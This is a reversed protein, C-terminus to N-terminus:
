SATRQHLGHEIAWAAIQVRSNLTLRALIHKIHNAATGETIVLEGAIQRNTLGRAILAAVERERQTLISVPESTSPRASSTGGVEPLRATPASQDDSALAYEIAEDLRIGRWESSIAAASDPHLASRAPEMWCEFRRQWAASVTEGISDRISTATAALRLARGPEGRRAAVGGLAALAYAVRQQDGIESALTLSEEEYRRATDLDGQELAVEGLDNLSIAMGRRNGLERYARLGAEYLTRATVLDDQFHAIVGIQIRSDAVGQADGLAQFLTLAEEQYSRATVFDGRVRALYGLGFAGAALSPRDDHERAVAASRSLLEHASGFDGNNVALRGAAQLAWALVRSDVAPSESAPETSGPLGPAAVPLAGSKRLLEVLWRHGESVYGRTVWFRYLPGALRLGRRADGCEASWALAARFNDHEEDLRQLWAAQRPGSLEPEAREALNVFWDLHRGRLALEEDADRLKDAAYERLSELFHYRVEDGPEDTLVLSKTVLASLLDLVDTPALEDNACVYEAAELTWGGAFIALRRLLVRERESLLDHSWDVLALLTQHRPLATRSGGSLLFFRGGLRAAIQEPSLVAIRAAALEIALPIGDLRRCIQEVAVANRANLTFSPVAARAREVFLRVAEPGPDVLGVRGSVPVPEAHAEHVGPGSSAALSPGDPSAPLSLSPVRITTEGAIGLAQRSTALIRVVPCARLIADALDACAGILHECNDLVLLLERPRLADALTATLPRDAEERVGLVSAVAQPVLRADSLAALEVLWVGDRFDDLRSAAVEHGLRTKGIGGAGTLTVLRSGDLLRRAEAIEQERGIFSTLPHPLNHPRPELQAREPRSLLLGPAREHGGSLSRIQGASRGESAAPRGLGEVQARAPGRNGSARRDSLGTVARDM